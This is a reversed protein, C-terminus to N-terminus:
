SQFEPRYAQILVAEYIPILQADTLM